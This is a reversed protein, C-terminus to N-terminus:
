PTRLAELPAVFTSCSQCNESLRAAPRCILRDATHHPMGIVYYPIQKHTSRHMCALLLAHTRSAGLAHSCLAPLPVADRRLEEYTFLRSLLESNNIKWHLDLTHINGDSSQSYSAQYSVFEGSVSVSREFGISVLAEHVQEKADMPIILDTDGRTRLAPDPYLSYALATGKILVPQIGIGHLRGLTQALIQQHRLEWMALQIANARLRRLVQAPWDSGALRDHLM